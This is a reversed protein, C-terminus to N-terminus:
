GISFTVGSDNSVEYTPIEKVILNKTMVYNKTSFIQEEIKPTIEYSGEYKKNTTIEVINFSVNANLQQSIVKGHLQQKILKGVLRQESVKGQLQHVLIKGILKQNVM